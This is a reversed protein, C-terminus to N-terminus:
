LWLSEPVMSHKPFDYWAWRFLAAAIGCGKEQFTQRQHTCVRNEANPRMGWFDDDSSDDGRMPDDLLFVARPPLHEPKERYAEATVANPSGM